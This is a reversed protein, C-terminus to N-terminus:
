KKRQSVTKELFGFWRASIKESDLEQCLSAAKLGMTSAKQPFDVMLTIAKAMTERDGVPVLLGNEGSTILDASGGAPCDTSISPVGSAMAEILVNPMGEFDSCLVFVAAKSLRDPLDSVKGPFSFADEPLMSAAYETWEDRLSGDGYIILKYMPHKLYFDSFADILLPFNKQKEFRGAGVVIKERDGEYPEPIRSLDLPNPIVTGKKRINESFYSAAGETQFIFGSAFPYLVRRLMRTIKKNPMSRPDNRESVVVPIGSCMMAGIVYIGIEEPLTLVVDPALRKVTKRVRMYRGFKDTVPNESVRGIRHVEVEAPVTYFDECDDLLVLSLEHGDKIWSNLLQSIVREAGGAGM